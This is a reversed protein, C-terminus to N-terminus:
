DFLPVLNDPPAIKLDLVTSSSVLSLSTGPNPSVAPTSLFVKLRLTWHWSRYYNWISKVYKVNRGTPTPVTVLYEVIFIPEKIVSKIWICYPKHFIFIYVWLGNKSFITMNEVDYSRCEIGSFDRFTVYARRWRLQCNSEVQTLSSFLLTRRPMLCRSMTQKLAIFAENENM